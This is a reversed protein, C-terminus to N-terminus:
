PRSAITPGAPAPRPRTATRAAIDPHAAVVRDDYLMVTWAHVTM